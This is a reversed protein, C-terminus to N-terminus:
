AGKPLQPEQSILLEAIKVAERATETVLSAPYGLVELSAESVAKWGYRAMLHRLASPCEPPVLFPIFPIPNRGGSQGM